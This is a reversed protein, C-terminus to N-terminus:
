VVSGSLRYVINTLIILVINTLIIISHSWSCLPVALIANMHQDSLFSFDFLCSFSDTSGPAAVAVSQIKALALLCM